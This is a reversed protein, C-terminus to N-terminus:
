SGFVASAPTTGFLADHALVVAAASYATREAAPFNVWDPFALGTFYSGDTDRLQRTWGLLLAAEAGLGARRCAIACEATEGTTIWDHDDVCRVGIGEHVFRSWRQGIRERAVAPELIGALVPYYWDMAWRDKEAFFEREHHRLADGLRDQADGWDPREKGLADAIARASGLSHFMSASGTVLAYHFPTGDPECAWHVEGTPQQMGVVWDIAREVTSWLSSLFGGDATTLHHHWVGTAIYAITNADFKADKVGDATYYQHWSGEERQSAVLWEYARAAEDHRGGVDLAMATEVHNWPDAHGGENWLILGSPLQLAAISDVSERLEPESLRAQNATM